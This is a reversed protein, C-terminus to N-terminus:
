VADTVPVLPVSVCLMLRGNVTDAAPVGGDNESAADGADSDMLCPCLSVAVTVIVRAPPKEHATASETLPCPEPTVAVDLGADTVPVVEVSVIVTAPFAVRLVRV